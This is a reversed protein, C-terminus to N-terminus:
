QSESYRMLLEFAASRSYHGAREESLTLEGFVANSCWPDFKGADNDAPFFERWVADPASLFVMRTADYLRVLERTMDDILDAHKKGNKIGCDKEVFIECDFTMVHIVGGTGLREPVDTAPQIILLPYEDSFRQALQVRAYPKGPSSGDLNARWQLAAGVKEVVMKKAAEILPLPGSWDIFAPQFDWDPMRDVVKRAGGSLPAM